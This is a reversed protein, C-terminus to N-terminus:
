IAPRRVLREPRARVRVEDRARAHYHELMLHNCRGLALSVSESPFHQMAALRDGVGNASVTKWRLALLRIMTDPLYARKAGQLSAVIALIGSGTGLDVVTKGTLDPINEALLLSYPSAPGVDDRFHLIIRHRGILHTEIEGM